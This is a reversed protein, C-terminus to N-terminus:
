LLDVATGDQWYSGGKLLGAGLYLAAIQIRWAVTAMSIYPREVSAPPKARADWSFYEGWPLFTGILLLMRVEGDWGPLMELRGQLSSAMFFCFLSAIRTRYGLALAVVGAIHLLYLALVTPYSGFWLYASWHGPYKLWALDGRPILGSDCYFAEVFGLNGLLDVLYILALGIRLLALSRLDLGLCYAWRLNQFGALM